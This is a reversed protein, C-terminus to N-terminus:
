FGDSAAFRRGFITRLKLQPDFGFISQLFSRMLVRSCGPAFPARLSFFRKFPKEQARELNV